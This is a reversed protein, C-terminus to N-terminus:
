KEGGGILDDINIENILQNIDIDNIGLQTLEEIKVNIIDSLKKNITRKLKHRKQIIEDRRKYFIDLYEEDIELMNNKIGYFVKCFNSLYVKNDKIFDVEKQGNLVLFYNVMKEFMPENRYSRILMNIFRYIDENCDDLVMDKKMERIVSNMVDTRKPNLESTGLVRDREILRQYKALTSFFKDKDNIEKGFLKNFITQYKEKPIKDGSEFIQIYSDLTPRSIQLKDAFEALTIGLNKLQNKVNIM